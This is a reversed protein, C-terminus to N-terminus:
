QVSGILSEFSIVHSAMCVLEANHGLVKGTDTRQFWGRRTYITQSEGFRFMLIGYQNGKTLTATTM